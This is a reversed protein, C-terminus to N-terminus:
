MPTLRFVPHRPVVAEIQADTAEAGVEWYDRTIPATRIYERIPPVADAGSLETALWRTTRRGRRLSVQGAARVNRVWNVVGYPAVLYRSSGLELVDIPIRREKGTRRGPVILVHLASPGLGLEAMTSTVRNGLAQGFGARYEKVM